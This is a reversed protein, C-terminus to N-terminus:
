ILHFFTKTQIHKELIENIHGSGTMIQPRDKYFDSLQTLLYEASRDSHFVLLLSISNNKEWKCHFMGSEDLTIIPERKLPVNALFLIMTKLSEISIEGKESDTDEEWYIFLEKLRNVVQDCISNPLLKRLYILIEEKTKINSFYQLFLRNVESYEYDECLIKIQENKIYSIVGSGISRSAMALTGDDELSIICKKYSNSEQSYTIIQTSGDCLAVFNVDNPKSEFLSSLLPIQEKEAETRIPATESINNM